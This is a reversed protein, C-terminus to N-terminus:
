SDKTDERPSTHTELTWVRVDGIEERGELVQPTLGRYQHNDPFTSKKRLGRILHGDELERLDVPLSERPTTTEEPRM